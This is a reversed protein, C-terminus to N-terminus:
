RPRLASQSVGGFKILDTKFIKLIPEKLAGLLATGRRRPLFILNGRGGAAPALTDRHM